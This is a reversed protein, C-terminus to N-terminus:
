VPTDPDMRKRKGDKRIEKVGKMPKESKEKNGKKMKDGRMPYEPKGRAGSPEGKKSMAKKM